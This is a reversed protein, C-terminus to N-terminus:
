YDDPEYAAAVTYRSINKFLGIAIDSSGVDISWTIGGATIRLWVDDEGLPDTIALASIDVYRLTTVEQGQSTGLWIRIDSLAIFACSSDPSLLQTGGIKEHHSKLMNITANVRALTQAKRAKIGTLDTM